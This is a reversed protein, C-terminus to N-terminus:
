SFLEQIADKWHIARTGELNRGLPDNSLLWREGKRDIDPGLLELAKADEIDVRDKSKIEVMLYPEGPRQIILDIELDDKTRLYSFTWDLRSYSANKIFELIVWHEFADGYAFTQPLLRVSLTKDLARKIGTDIFYFKPSLRQGKRVSKHFAPLTFGLLTDELIEFYNSITVDDVGVEKAIKSKNVIKGNMQAAIALFSRFPALKRVWQEEQIEKQLYTGVYANLYERANQEDNVLAADPLTGWELARILDFEKDLELTTFPFLNYVWARGALLNTGKQKLRRSSSGTLVFQKKTKQIELHVLDLLRPLRQIEDIVVRKKENGKQNIMPLFRGIDLLLQDYVDPDLLNIFLTEEPSFYDHLLTTKGTGRAGFLFFSNSKSPKCLRQIM